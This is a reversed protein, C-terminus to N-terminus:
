ILTKSVSQVLESTSPDSRVLERIDARKTLSSVVMTQLDQPAKLAYRLVSGINVENAGQVIMAATMFQAAMGNQASADPFPTHEPDNAIDRMRPLDQAIRIFAELELAAPGVLSSLLMQRLAGDEVGIVKGAQEWQRPTPNIDRSPDFDHLAKPNVKLYGLIVPDIGATVAWSAWDDVTPPMMEFVAMRNTLIANMNFLPGKDERRNGAAIVWTDPPLEHTAVKRELTLQMALALMSPTMHTIEDIFLITKHGSEHAEWLSRFLEPRLFKTADKDPVGIGLLDMPTYHSGHITQLEYGHQEAFQRVVATKGIGAPGLLLPTINSQHLHGMLKLASTATITPNTM